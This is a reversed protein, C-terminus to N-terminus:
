SRRGHLHAAAIVLGMAAVAVAVWEGLERGNGGFFASVTQSDQMNDM